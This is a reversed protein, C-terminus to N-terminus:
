LFSQRCIEWLCIDMCSKGQPFYFNAKIGLPTTTSINGRILPNDQKYKKGGIGGGEWTDTLKARVLKVLIPSKHRKFSESNEKIKRFNWIRFGM